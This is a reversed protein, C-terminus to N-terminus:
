NGHPGYSKSFNTGVKSWTQWRCRHNRAASLLRANGPNLERLHRQTVVGRVENVVLLEVRKIVTGGM